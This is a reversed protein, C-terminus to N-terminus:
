IRFGFWNEATVADIRTPESRGDCTDVYLWGCEPCRLLLGRDENSAVQDVHGYSLNQDDRCFDCGRNDVGCLHDDSARGHRQHRALAGLHPHADNRKQPRM